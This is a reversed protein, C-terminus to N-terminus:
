VLLVLLMSNAFAFAFVFLRLCLCKCMVVFDMIHCLWRSSLLYCRFDLFSRVLCAYISWIDKLSQVSSLCLKDAIKDNDHRWVGRFEIVLCVCVCLFGFSCFAIDRWKSQQWIDKVMCWVKYLHLLKIAYRSRMSHQRRCVLYALVLNKACVFVCLIFVCMTRSLLLWFFVAVLMM